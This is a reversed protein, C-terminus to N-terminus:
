AELFLLTHQHDRTCKLNLRELLPMTGLFKTPKKARKPEGNTDPIFLKYMCQDLSVSKCNCKQSVMIMKPIKWAFSSLPNELTFFSGRALFLQCLHLTRRLIENGVRERRLTGDGLPLKSSRTGKNMSQMISFSGCPFGFHWFQRPKCAEQCLKDFVVDNLIDQSPDPKGKKMLEFPPKVRFTKRNHTFAKALHANGSFIERFTWESAAPHDPQPAREKKPGPSRESSGQNRM